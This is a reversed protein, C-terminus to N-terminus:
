RKARIVEADTVIVDVPEDVDEAPIEEVLQIHFGIGVRAAAPHLRELYRDYHGGGYGLRNGRRDFALGPTIVVDVSAPDVPVRHTPERPGYTTPELPDGRRVEAAEMSEETLYPLLIRRGRALLRRILVATPIESGFSYFLLVCRADRVEPLALLRSEARGALVPREAPSIAARAARMRNRLRQKAEGGKPM